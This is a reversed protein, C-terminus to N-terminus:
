WYYLHPKKSLPFVAGDPDLTGNLIRRVVIREKARRPRTHFQRDWWAPYGNMPCLYLHWRQELPLEYADEIRVPKLGVKARWSNISGRKARPATNRPKKRKYHAM